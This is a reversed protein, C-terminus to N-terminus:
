PHIAAVPDTGGLTDDVQPLRWIDHDSLINPSSVFDTGIGVQYYLTQSNDDWMKSLWQLGFKAEATFDNNGGAGM